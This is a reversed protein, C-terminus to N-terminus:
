TNDLKGSLPSSLIPCWLLGCRARVPIPANMDLWGALSSVPQVGQVQGVSDSISSAPFSDEQRTQPPLRKTCGQEKMRRGLALTKSMLYSGITNATKDKFPAM